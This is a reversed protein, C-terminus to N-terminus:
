AEGHTMDKIHQMLIAIKREPEAGTQIAPAENVELIYHEGTESNVIVDVGALDSRLTLEAAKLADRQMADTLTDIPVFEGEGGASTNNLHTDASKSRSRKLVFQIEGNMIMVRYDFENPIFEQLVFFQGRNEQLISKLQAYDKVLYNLKGGFTDAAKAIFPYTLPPNKKFRELIGAESSMFTDPLPVGSDSMRVLEGIKTTCLTNLAEHGTFPIGKRDLYTAAALAQQPSKLWLEFRVFDFADLGKGTLSETVHLQNDIIEIYLDKLSGKSLNLGYEAEKEKLPNYLTNYYGTKHNKFSFFVLVNKM